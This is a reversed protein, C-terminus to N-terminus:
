KGVCFRSFMTELIDATSVEGTIEGLANIGERVLPAILDPPMGQDALSLAETLAALAADIGEKQRATGIGAGARGAYGSGGAADTGPCAAELIAAIASNLAPLGAGTKASLEPPEGGPPPPGSFRTVDAKNWVCLIPASGARLTRSELFARDEPTIGLTGDILYLTLDAEGILERSRAVGLQEVPDASDRLGATDVLRIPIGELSIWAEIWDRTTGPVDTVISRDENVLLNFLSSKGSNPRGAIVVLAGDQYLRERRYGAALARLRGLAEEAASRDPLPGATEQGAPAGEGPGFGTEDEPYDLLLELGALVRVLLSKIGAIEAELVGSLRGVARERGQDTKASVLEMVSEARTLDLKGNMFARFTFEGPLGDRFGAGRLAALVAKAAAIGGHCSIDLGDEGTYSRPARYVSVLVEDIREAEGAHDKRDPSPKLMWGHVVTHGPAERLARPRSFVSAAMEIAGKGSVRILALASEAVPTAPAAIPRDDGYVGGSDTRSDM